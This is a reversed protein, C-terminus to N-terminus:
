LTVGGGWVCVCASGSAGGKGEPVGSWGTYKNMGEARLELYWNSASLKM